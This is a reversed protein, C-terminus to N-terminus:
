AAADDSLYPKFIPEILYSSVLATLAPLFFVPIALRVCLLVTAGYLVGLGFTRPLNALALLVTNKLLGSFSNEFRSLVPFLLGLVGLALLAPVAAFAFLMWSHAGRVAGNWLGIMGAALGYGGALFMVSPLLGVKWNRRYVQWFRQWPHREGQRFGRFAADYVGACSAGVTVVPICGLLWFLSLFICDTIRTMASMLGSDPDFMKRFM